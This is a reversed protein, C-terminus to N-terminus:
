PRGTAKTGGVKTKFRETGGAEYKTRNCEKCEKTVGRTTKYYINDFLADPVAEWERTLKGDGIKVTVNRPARPLDSQEATTGGGPQTSCDATLAFRSRPYGDSDHKTM